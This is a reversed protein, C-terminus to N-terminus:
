WAFHTKCHFLNRQINLSCYRTLLVLHTEEGNRWHYLTYKVSVARSHKDFVNTATPTTCISRRTKSALQKTGEGSRQVRKTNNFTATGEGESM